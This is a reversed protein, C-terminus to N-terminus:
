VKLSTYKLGSLESVAALRRRSAAGPYQHSHINSAFFKRVCGDANLWTISSHLVLGQGFGLVCFKM